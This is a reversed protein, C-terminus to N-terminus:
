RDEALGGVLVAATEEPMEYYGKMIAPNRLELEGEGGVPVEAGDVMVRGDNM